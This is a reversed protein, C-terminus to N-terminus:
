RVTVAALFLFNEPDEQGLYELDRATVSLNVHIGVPAIHVAEEMAFASDKGAYHEYFHVYSM